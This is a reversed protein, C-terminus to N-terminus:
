CATEGHQRVKRQNNEGEGEREGKGGKIEDVERVVRKGQPDEGIHNLLPPVGYLFAGPPKGLLYQKDCCRVPYKVRM